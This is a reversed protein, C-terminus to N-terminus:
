RLLEAGKAFFLAANGVLARHREQNDNGLGDFLGKVTGVMTTVNGVVANANKIMLQIMDPPLGAKLENVWLMMAHAKDISDLLQETTV